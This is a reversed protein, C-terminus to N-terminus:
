LAPPCAGLGFRHRGFQGSETRGTMLAETSPKWLGLGYSVLAPSEAQPIL